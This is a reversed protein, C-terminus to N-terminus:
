FADDIEDEEDLKLDFEKIFVDGLAKDCKAAQDNVISSIIFLALASVAPLALIYPNNPLAPRLSM